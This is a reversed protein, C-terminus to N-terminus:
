LIFCQTQIYEGGYYHDQAYIKITGFKYNIKSILRKETFTFYNTNEIISKDVVVEFGYELMSESANNEIISKMKAIMTDNQIYEDKLIPKETITIEEKTQTNANASIDSPVTNSVATDTKETNKKSTDNNNKSTTKNTSSNTSNSKNSETLTEKKATSTSTNKTEKLNNTEIKKNTENNVIENQIDIEGINNLSNSINTNNNIDTINVINVLPLDNASYKNILYIIILVLVVLIFFIILMKKKM